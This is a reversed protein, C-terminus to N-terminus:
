PVLICTVKLCHLTSRSSAALDDQEERNAGNMDVHLPPFPAESGVPCFNSANRGAAAKLDVIMFSLNGDDAGAAICLWSDARAHACVGAAFAM